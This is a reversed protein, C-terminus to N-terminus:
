SSGFFVWASFDLCSPEGAGEDLWLLKFSGVASPRRYFNIYSENDNQEHQDSEDVM